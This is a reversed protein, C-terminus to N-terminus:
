EDFIDREHVELKLREQGVVEIDIGPQIEGTVSTASWLEGRIRVWGSPSLADITKGRTGIMDPLGVIHGANIAKTGKKFTYVSYTLWLIMVPPLVWPSIRIDIKPLGWLVAVMMLCEEIFTSVVAFILRPNKMIIIIDRAGTINAHSPTAM